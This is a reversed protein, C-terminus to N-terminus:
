PGISIPDGGSMTNITTKSSTTKSPGHPHCTEMDRVANIIPGNPQKEKSFVGIREIAWDKKTKCCIM